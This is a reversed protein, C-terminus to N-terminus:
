GQGPWRWARSGCAKVVASIPGSLPYRHVGHDFCLCIDQLIIISLPSVLRLKNSCTEHVVQNDVIAADAVGLGTFLLM